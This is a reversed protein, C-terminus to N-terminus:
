QELFKWNDLYVTGGTTPMGLRLEVYTEEGTFTSSPVSVQLTQSDTSASVVSSRLTTIKTSGNWLVVDFRAPVNTLVTLEALYDKTNDFETM